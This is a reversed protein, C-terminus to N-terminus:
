NSTLQRWNFDKSLHPIRIKRPLLKKIGWGVKFITYSNNSPPVCLDPRFMLCITFESGFHILLAAFISPAGRMTPGQQVSVKCFRESHFDTDRALRAQLPRTHPFGWFDSPMRRSRQHQPSPISSILIKLISFYKVYLSYIHYQPHFFDQV